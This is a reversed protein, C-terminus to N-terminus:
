RIVMLKETNNRMMYIGNVMQEFIYKIKLEHSFNWDDSMFFFTLMLSHLLKTAWREGPEQLNFTYIISSYLMTKVARLRLQPFTINKCRHTLWETWMPHIRAHLPCPTYVEGGRRPLCVRWASEGRPLRGKGGRASVAVGGGRSPLQLPRYM